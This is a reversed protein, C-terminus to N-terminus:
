SSIGSLGNRRAVKPLKQPILLRSCLRNVASMPWLDVPGYRRPDICEGTTASSRISTRGRSDGVKKPGLPKNPSGCHRVSPLEFDSARACCCLERLSCSGGPYPDHNSNTASLERRLKRARLAVSRPRSVPLRRMWQISERSNAHTARTQISWCESTLVQGPAAEARLLAEM